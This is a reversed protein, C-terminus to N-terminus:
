KTHNLTPKFLGMHILARIVLLHYVSAEDDFLDRFLYNTTSHTSITPNAGIDIIFPIKDKIRFDIRALCNFQLHRAVCVANVMLDTDNSYRNFSYADIGVSDYDLYNKEKEFVIQCAGACFYNDKIKILPVEVEDGDIFEQLIFSSYNKSYDIIEKCLKDNSGPLLHIKKLGISASEDIPKLIYQGQKMSVIINKLRNINFKNFYVTKPFHLEDNSALLDHMLKKNGSLFSAYETSGINILNYYRCLLPILARRGIGKINQSMSYVLVYRHNKKLDDIAKIFSRESCYSYTFYAIKRFARMIMDLEIPTICESSHSDDAHEKDNYVFVIAYRQDLKGMEYFEHYLKKVYDISLM